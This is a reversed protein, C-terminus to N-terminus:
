QINPNPTPKLDVCQLKVYGNGGYGYLKDRWTCGGTGYGFRRTDAMNDGDFYSVWNGNSDKYFDRHKGGDNTGTCGPLSIEEKSDINYFGSHGGVGYRKGGDGDLYVSGNYGNYSELIKISKMTNYGFEGATASTGQSRNGNGGGNAWAIMKYNSGEKTSLSSLEGSEGKDYDGGGRAVRVYLKEGPTVSITGKIYAGGGGPHEESSADGSSKWRGASGSGTIEFQMKNCMSPVTYEYQKSVPKYNISLSTPSIGSASQLIESNSKEDYIVYSIGSEAPNPNTYIFSNGPPLPIGVCMNSEEAQMPRVMGLSPNIFYPDETYNTALITNTSGPKIAFASSYDNKYNICVGNIFDPETNSKCMGSYNICRGAADRQYCYAPDYVWVPIEFSEKLNGAGEKNAESNNFITGAQLYINPKSNIIEGMPSTTTPNSVAVLPSTSYGTMCVKPDFIECIPNGYSDKNWSNCQRHTCFEIQHMFKCTQGKYEDSRFPPKKYLGPDEKLIISQGDEYSLKIAPESFSGVSEVKPKRMYGPRPICGLFKENNISGFLLTITKEQYFCIKEPQEVTIKACFERGDSSEKCDNYVPVYRPNVPDISDVIYEGCYKDDGYPCKGSAPLLPSDPNYSDPAKPTLLVDEILNTSYEKDSNCKEVSFTGDGNDVKCIRLITSPKLFTSTSAMFLSPDPLANRDWCNNCFSPPMPGIPMPVCGLERIVVHNFNEMIAGVLAGVGAGLGVIIPLLPGAFSAAVVGAGLGVSTGILATQAVTLGDDYPVNKHFPSSLPDTDMGDMPDEYACLQPFNAPNGYKGASARRACVRIPFGVFYTWKCENVSLTAKHTLIADKYIVQVKPDLYTSSNSPCVGCFVESGVCKDPAQVAKSGDDCKPDAYSYGPVNLIFVASLLFVYFFLKTKKFIKM